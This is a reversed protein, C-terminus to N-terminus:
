ARVMGLIWLVFGTVALALWGGILASSPKSEKPRGIGTVILGLVSGIWGLFGIELLVTWFVNPPTVKQDPLVKEKEELRVLNRMRSESKEIWQQGPVIFHSSGYFGSRITSFAIFALKVDGAREAQDGIEWLKQASKQVYPNLPAYWHLSRDFYTIARVTQNEKLLAEGTKYDEMSGYFVRAWLMFLLLCAFSVTKVILSSIRHRRPLFENQM